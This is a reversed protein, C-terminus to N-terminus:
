YYEMEIMCILDEADTEYESIISIFSEERLSDEWSRLDRSQM